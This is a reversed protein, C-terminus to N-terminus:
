SKQSGFYFGLVTGLVSTGAPFIAQMADKVHGWQTDGLKAASVLYILVVILFVVCALLTIRGRVKERTEDPNYTRTRFPVSSAPNAM